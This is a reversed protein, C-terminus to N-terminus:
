IFHCTPGVTSLTSLPHYIPHILASSNLISSLIKSVLVYLPHIYLNMPAPLRLDKWACIQAQNPRKGDRIRAVYSSRGRTRLAAKGKGRARVALRSLHHCHTHASGRRTPPRRSSAQETSTVPYISNAPLHQHSHRSNMIVQVQDRWKFDVAVSQYRRPVRGFCISIWPGIRADFISPHAARDGERSIFPGRGLV